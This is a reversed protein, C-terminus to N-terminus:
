SRTNRNRLGRNNIHGNRLQKISKNEPNEGHAKRDLLASIFGAVFCAAIIVAGM